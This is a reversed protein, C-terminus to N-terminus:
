VLGEKCNGQAALCSRCATLIFTVCGLVLSRKCNSAGKGDSKRSARLRTLIAHVM